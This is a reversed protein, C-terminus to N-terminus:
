LASFNKVMTRDICFLNLGAPPTFSVPTTGLGALSFCPVSVLLFLHAWEEQQQNASIV